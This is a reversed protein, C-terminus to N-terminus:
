NVTKLPDQRFVTENKLLIKNNKHNFKNRISSQFSSYYIDISISFSIM